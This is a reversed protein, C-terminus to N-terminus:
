RSRGAGASMFAGNRDGATPFYLGEETTASPSESCAALLFPLFLACGLVRKM